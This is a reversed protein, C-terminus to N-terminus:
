DASGRDRWLRSHSSGPSAPLGLGRATGALPALGRRFTVLLGRARAAARFEPTDYRTYGASTIQLWRLRESKLVDETGPQGVVIDAGAMGPDAAAVALVSDLPQAPLILEHPAIGQEVLTRGSDSLRFDCFIRLGAM